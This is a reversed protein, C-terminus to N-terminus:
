CAACRRAFFFLSFLSLLLLLLLSSSSPSCRPARRRPHAVVAAAGISRRNASRPWLRQLAASHELSHLPRGADGAPNANQVSSQDTALVDSHDAFCIGEDVNAARRQGGLKKTATRGLRSAGLQADDNRRRDEDNQM